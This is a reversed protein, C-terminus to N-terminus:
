NMHSRTRPNLQQAPILMNRCSNGITEDGGVQRDAASTSSMMKWYEQVIQRRWKVHTLEATAQQKRGTCGLPDV